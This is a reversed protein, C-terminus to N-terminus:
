LVDAVGASFCQSETAALVSFVVHDAFRKTAGRMQTGSAELQKIQINAYTCFGCADLPVVQVLPRKKSDFKGRCNRSEVVGM